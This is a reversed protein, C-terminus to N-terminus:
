YMKIWLAFNSKLSKLQSMIVALKVGMKYNTSPKFLPSTIYIIVSERFRLLCM